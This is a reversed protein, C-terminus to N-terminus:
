NEPNLMALAQQMETSMMQELSLVHRDADGEIFGHWGVLLQSREQGTPDLRPEDSDGWSNIVRGTSVNRNGGGCLGRDWVM